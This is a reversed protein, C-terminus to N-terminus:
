YRSFNALGVHTGGRPQSNKEDRRQRQSLRRLLQRTNQTLGNRSNVTSASGHGPMISSVGSLSPSPVSRAPSTVSGGALLEM